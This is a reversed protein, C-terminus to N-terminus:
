VDWTGSEFTDGNPIPVRTSSLLVPPNNDRRDAADISGNGNGNGTYVPPGYTPPGGYTINQPMFKKRFVFALVLLVIGIGIYLKKNEM